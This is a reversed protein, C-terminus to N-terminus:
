IQNNGVKYFKTNEKKRDFEINKIDEEMITMIQSHRSGHM